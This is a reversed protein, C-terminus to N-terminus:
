RPTSPVPLYDLRGIAQRTYLNVTWGVIDRRRQLGVLGVNSYTAGSGTRLGLIRSRLSILTTVATVAMGPVFITGAM